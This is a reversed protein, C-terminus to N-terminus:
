IGFAIYDYPANTGTTLTFGNNTITPTFSTATTSNPLYFAADFTHGFLSKDAYVTSYWVSNSANGKVLIVLPRFGLNTVTVTNNTGTVSGKAVKMFATGSALQASIAEFTSGASLGVQAALADRKQSIRNKADANAKTAELLSANTALRKDFSYTTVTTAGNSDTVTISATHTAFYALTDWTAQPVTLTRSLSAPNNFTNVTVGNVKEVIQTVTSGVEPTVTYATLTATEKNGLAGSAPSVSAGVNFNGSFKIGDTGSMFVFPPTTMQLTYDVLASPNSEAAPDAEAVAVPAGWSGGSFTRMYIDLDPSWQHEEYLAFVKGTKDAALSVNQRDYLNGSTLKVPTAWTVGGDDSYSVRVNFKASDTADKGHWAVWLRGNALGNISQPVVIASPSSQAYSGGAYVTKTGWGSPPGGGLDQTTIGDGAVVIWKTQVYEFFIRVKGNSNLVVSPNQMDYGSGGSGCVQVAAGWTVSGNGNITGKAYRIGFSNPYTANKSSWAAHLETGADNIALSIAGLASQGSDVNVSSGQLVGSDNYRYHKAGTTSFSVLVHIDNGKSALAMDNVTETVTVIQSWTAGGDTSKLLRWSTTSSRVASILAGNQLRTLKAGGNGATSLGTGTAVTANNIVPM